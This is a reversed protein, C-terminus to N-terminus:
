TPVFQAAPQRFTQKFCMLALNMLVFAAGQTAKAAMVVQEERAWPGM